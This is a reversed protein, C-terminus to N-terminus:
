RGSKQPSTKATTESIMLSQLYLDRAYHVGFRYARYVYVASLVALLACPLWSEQIAAICALLFCAAALGRNLGYNRNFTDIRDPKVHGAVDSNLQRSIPFWITRDLGIATEKGSARIAAKQPRRRQTPAAVAVREAGRPQSNHPRPAPAFVSPGAHGRRVVKV